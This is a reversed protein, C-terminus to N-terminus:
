HWDVQVPGIPVEYQFASNTVWFWSTCRTRQEDTEAKKNGEEIDGLLTCTKGNRTQDYISMYSYYGGMCNKVMPLGVITLLKEHCASEDEMFLLPVQNTVSSSPPKFRVIWIDLFSLPFWSVIGCGVSIYFHM